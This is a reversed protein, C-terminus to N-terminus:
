DTLGKIYKRAAAYNSKQVYGSIAKKADERVKKPLSTPVQKMFSSLAKQDYGARRSMQDVRYPYSLLSGGVDAVGKFGKKAAGLARKLFSRKKETSM